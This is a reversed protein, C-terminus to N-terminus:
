GALTISPGASLPLAYEAPIEACSQQAVYGKHHAWIAFPSITLTPGCSCRFHLSLCTQAQLAKHHGIHAPHHHDVMAQDREPLVVHQLAQIDWVAEHTGNTKDWWATVVLQSTGGARPSYPQVRTVVMSYIWHPDPEILRFALTSEVVDGPRIDPIGWVGACTSCKKPDHRLGLVAPTPEASAPSADASKSPLMAAGAAVAASGLLTRRTLM